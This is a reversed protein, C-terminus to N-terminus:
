IIADVFWYISHRNSAKISSIMQLIHLEKGDLRLFQWNIGDSVMGYITDVIRKADDSMRQQQIGVMYTTAQALGAVFTAQRKAEM